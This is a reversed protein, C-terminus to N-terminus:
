IPYTEKIHIKLKQKFKGLSTEMKLDLPLKNWDQTTRHVFGFKRPDSKITDITRLASDSALRTRYPFNFSFKDVFYAPKKEQIMKFALLLSHYHVLQRVSLWGCQKLLPSVPTYWRLRTVLRAARNQLVQLFDLLYGSCGGWLQILYILKSMVIGDALSKRTKFSSVSCIKALANVRSTLTRFVSKEDDKLHANFKFDNSIIGGLLTESRQPQITKSSTELFIGFNEERQHKVTTSMILLHTKDSKLVLKNEAMFTEIKKFKQDLLSNIEQYNKGSVTYTSDDAFCCIGGCDSCHSNYFTGNTSLHDHVTEPLDNTFLIYLLPGLISGQPVGAELDLPPSLAGEQYVQQSRGSLYSRLWKTSSEELGYLEMKQLLIHHDVVDFAASM